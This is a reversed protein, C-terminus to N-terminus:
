FIFYTDSAISKSANQIYTNHVTEDVRSYTIYLRKDDFNDITQKSKWSTTDNELPIRDDRMINNGSIPLKVTMEDIENQPTGGDILLGDLVQGEKDNTYRYSFVNCKSSAMGTGANIDITDIYNDMFKKWNTINDYNSGDDDPFYATGDDNLEYDQEVRWGKSLFYNLQNIYDITIIDDLKKQIINRYRCYMSFQQKFKYAFKDSSMVDEYTHTQIYERDQKTFISNIKGVIIGFSSNLQKIVEQYIRHPFNINKHYIEYTKSSFLDSLMITLDKTLERKHEHMIYSTYLQDPLERSKGENYVRVKFYLYASSNDDDTESYFLLYPEQGQVFFETGQIKKITRTAHGRLTGEYFDGSKEIPIIDFEPVSQHNNYGKANFDCYGFKKTCNEFLIETDQKKVTIKFDDVIDRPRIENIQYDLQKRGIRTGRTPTNIKYVSDLVYFDNQSKFKQDIENMTENLITITPVLNNKPKNQQKTADDIDKLGDALYKAFEAPSMGRTDAPKLEDCSSITVRKYGNPDSYGCDTLNGLVCAHYEDTGATGQACQATECTLKNPPVRTGSSAGVMQNGTPLFKTFNDGADYIQAALGACSGVGAKKKANPHKPDYCGDGKESDQCKACMLRGEETTPGGDWPHNCFFRIFGWWGNIVGQGMQELGYAVGDVTENFANTAGDAIGDGIGIFGDGVGYGVDKVFDGGEYGMTKVAAVSGVAAGKATDGIDYVLGGAQEWFNKYREKVINNTEFGFHKFKSIDDYITPSNVINHLALDHNYIMDANIVMYLQGNNMMGDVKSQNIKEFLMNQVPHTHYDIKQNSITLIMEHFSDDHGPFSRTGKRINHINIMYQTINGSADEHSIVGVTGHITKLKQTKFTNDLGIIYAEIPMIGYYDGKKGMIKLRNHELTKMNKYMAEFHICDLHLDFKELNNHTEFTNIALEKYNDPLHHYYDDYHDNTNGSQDLFNESGGTPPPLVNGTVTYHIGTVEHSPITKNSTDKKSFIYILLGVVIILIIVM